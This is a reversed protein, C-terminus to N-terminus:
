LINTELNWLNNPVWKLKINLWILVRQSRGNIVRVSKKNLKTATGNRLAWLFITSLKMFSIIICSLLKTTYSLSKVM